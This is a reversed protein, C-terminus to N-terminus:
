KLLSSRKARAKSRPTKRKVRRLITRREDQQVRICDNCYSKLGSKMRPNRGFFIQKKTKKCDACKKHLAVRGGKPKRKRKRKGIAPRKKRTGVNVIRPM